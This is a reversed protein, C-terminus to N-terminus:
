LLNLKRAQNVAEVRSNAGLKGYINRMYWKVTNLSLFLKAAIQGNSLGGAVLRLIAVEHENLRETVGTEADAVTAAESEVKPFADLLANIYDKEGSKRLVQRLLQRMM